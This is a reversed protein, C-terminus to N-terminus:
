NKGKNWNKECYQAQYLSLIDVKGSYIKNGTPNGYLKVLESGPFHLLVQLGPIEDREFRQIITQVSDTKLNGLRWWPELTGVNSYVDWNNTVFFWFQSPESLVKEDDPPKQDDQLIIERLERETRWLIDKRWHKRSPALIEEPLSAVEEETCRLYEIKRCEGDPGPPHMFLQFEGGLARVREHLTLREILSLLDNLDPLLKKTLFIQWRPKMGVALLRETATLADQFAGKRRYFWDTTAEMGFFSIQCTDPGMSKAWAAYDPDHALRWISLLEYRAPKGDSLEVCIEHLRRYDDSYDPERFNDSVTLSEIKSDTSKLYDRFQRATWRLDDVSMPRNSGYGLYCHRCRNPCGHMDLAVGISKSTIRPM